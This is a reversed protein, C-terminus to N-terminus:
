QIGILVWILGQGEQLTELAQGITHPQQLVVTDGTTIELPEAKITGTMGTMLTDGAYIAGSTADAKVQALGQVVIFLYEGPEVNGETMSVIEISERQDYNRRQLFQDPLTSEGNANVLDNINIVEVDESPLRQDITEIVARSQVVGIAGTGITDARSVTMIPSSGGILPSSVGSVSVVDGIALESRGSNLGIYAISCGTCSGGVYLNQGTYLGWTDATQGWVGIALAGTGGAIGYAGISNDSTGLVGETASGSGYGHVGEGYETYGWGYVATAGFGDVGRGNVSAGHVGMAANGTGWVAADGSDTSNTGGVVAEEAYDGGDTYAYLGNGAYSRAQIADGSQNAGNNKNDLSFIYDLNDDTNATTVRDIFAAMQARNVYDTPSYTTGSTGTTIGLNMIRLVNACYWAGTPIDGFPGCALPAATVASAIGLTFLLVIIIAIQVKRNKFMNKM